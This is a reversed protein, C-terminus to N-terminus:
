IETGAEQYAEAADHYTNEIKDKLWTPSVVIAEKGFQMFYYIVQEASCSFSMYIYEDKKEATDFTPRNHLIQRYKRMGAETLRVYIQDHNQNVGEFIYQIGKQDIRKQIEEADEKKMGIELDTLKVAEIRSIRFSSPLMKMNPDGFPRSMGALYYYNNDKDPELCYPVVVYRKISGTMRDEVKARGSAGKRDEAPASGGISRLDIILSNRKRIPSNLVQRIQAINPAFFLLERECVPKEAYSEVLAELYARITRYAGSNEWNIEGSYLMSYATNSLRIIHMEASPKEKLAKTYKYVLAPRDAEALAAAVKKMQNEATIGIKKGKQELISLYYQKKKEIEHDICAESHNFLVEFLHNFFGTRNTELMFNQIDENIIEEAKTSLKLKTKQSAGQLEVPLEKSMIDEKRM